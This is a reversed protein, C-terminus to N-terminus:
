IALSKRFYVLEIDVEVKQMDGCHACPKETYFKPMYADFVTLDIGSRIGDAVKPSLNRLFPIIDQFLDTLITEEGPDGVIIRKTFFTLVDLTSLISGEKSINNKLSEPNLMSTILLRDKETPIGFDFKILGGFTEQRITYESPSVSQDWVNKFTDEHVLDNPVSQIIYKQGCSTCERELEPLVVYSANLLGWLMTAKDPPYVEGLFENFTPKSGDEFNTHNYLLENVKKLFSDPSVSVSKLAQEEAGTISTIEVKRLSMPLQISIAKTNNISDLQTLAELYKPGLNFSSRQNLNSKISEEISPQERQLVEEPIGQAARLFAESERQVHSIDVNAPDMHIGSNTDQQNQM